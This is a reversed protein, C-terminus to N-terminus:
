NNISYYFIISLYFIVIRPISVLDKKQPIPVSWDSINNKYTIYSWFYYVIEILILIIINIYNINDFVLYNNILFKKSIIIKNIHSYWIILSIILFNALILKKILIRTKDFILLISLLLVFYSYQISRIPFLFNTKFILNIILEYNIFFYNAILISLSFLILIFLILLGKGTIQKNFTININGKNFKYFTFYNLSILGVFTPIILGSCYYLISYFSKNDTSFLYLNFWQKQIFPFFLFFSVIVFLKILKLNTIM